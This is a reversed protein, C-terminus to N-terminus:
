HYASRVKEEVERIIEWALQQDLSRDVVVDHNGHSFPAIVKPRYSVDIDSRHIVTIVLPSEALSSHFQGKPIYYRSGVSIITSANQVCSVPTGTPQLQGNGDSHLVVYGGDPTEEIHYTTNRLVGDLVYSEIGHAHDHVVLRQDGRVQVRETWVHLRLPSERWTTNPSLPLQLFGNPHLKIVQGQDRKKAIFELIDDACAGGVLPISRNPM